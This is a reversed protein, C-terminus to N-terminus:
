GARRDCGPACCDAAGTAMGIRVRAKGLLPWLHHFLNRGVTHKESANTGCGYGRALYPPPLHGYGIIARPLNRRHLVVVAVEVLANGCPVVLGSGLHEVRRDDLGDDVEEDLEGPASM